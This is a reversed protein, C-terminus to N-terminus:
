SQVEELAQNIKDGAEKKPDLVCIYGGGRCHLSAYPTNPKIGLLKATARTVGKSYQIREVLSSKIWIKEGFTDEFEVLKTLSSKDDEANKYIKRPAKYTYGDNELMSVENQNM